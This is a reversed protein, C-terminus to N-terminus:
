NDGFIMKIEDSKLTKVQEPNEHPIRLDIDSEAITQAKDVAKYFTDADMVFSDTISCTAM